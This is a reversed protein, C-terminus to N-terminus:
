NLKTSQMEQIFEQPGRITWHGDYQIVSPCTHTNCFKQIEILVDDSMKEGMEICKLYQGKSWNQVNILVKCLNPQMWEPFLEQAWGCFYKQCMQPRFNYVTCNTQLFACAKRNGFDIGFANGVLWGQCCAQCNGCERM